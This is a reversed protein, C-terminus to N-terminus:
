AGRPPLRDAARVVPRQRRLPQAHHRRPRRRHAVGADELARQAAATAAKPMRAKDARAFGASLVRVVGDGGAMARAGEADLVVAGATGDAPHTQSGFTVVGGERV